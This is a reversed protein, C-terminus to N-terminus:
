RGKSVPYRVTVEPNNEPKIGKTKKPNKKRRWEETVEGEVTRKKEKKWKKSGDATEFFPWIFSMAEALFCNFVWFYLPRTYIHILRTKWLSCRFLPVIFHLESHLQM